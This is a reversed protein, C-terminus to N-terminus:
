DTGHKVYYVFGEFKAIMDDIDSDELHALSNGLQGMLPGAIAKYMPPIELKSTLTTITEVLREQKTSICPM